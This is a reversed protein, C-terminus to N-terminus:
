QALSFSHRPLLVFVFVFTHLESCFLSVTVLVNALSHSCHASLVSSVIISNIIIINGATCLISSKIFRIQCSYLCHTISEYFKHHGWNIISIDRRSLFQSSLDPMQWCIQNQYSQRFHHYMIHSLKHCMSLLSVARAPRM